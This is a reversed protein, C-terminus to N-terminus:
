TRSLGWEVGSRGGRNRGGLEAQPGRVRGSYKASRCRLFILLNFLERLAVHNGEQLLLNEVWLSRDDDTISLPKRLLM